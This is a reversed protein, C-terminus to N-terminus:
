EKFLSQLEELKRKRREEDSISLAEGLQNKREQIALMREEISNEMIFRVVKVNKLQGMRHLRDIAQFEIANNWHPDMLFAKSAVTLNLGVGGARLSLLLISVKQEGKPISKEFENLVRQRQELNLRGDFRLVEFEGTYKELETGIIDLFSTFQSFVIVHEGPTEQRIQELHILLANIKSSQENPIFPRVFYERSEETPQTSTPLQTMFTENADVNVLDISSFNIKKVTRFLRNRNIQTRCMPCFVEEPKFIDTNHAEDSIMEGNEHKLQFDFHETLCEICFCHKCETIICTDINIPGTCISCDINKFDPYLEYIEKKLDKIKQVPLKQQCDNAEIKEVLTLMEDDVKNSLKQQKTTVKNTPALDTDDGDEQEGTKILDVHCCVQRLRLLQTLITSYNKFVMGSKFNENFSNVAKEKLWEYIAIERKNFKLKEIVIEKPPLVVLFNGEKDRQNKTRRLLIPDLISKLLEVAFPVDKGTEFPDSICHKWLSHYCWPRMDLFHVLSFLDDLRNIIPTGTLVWRRDAKLDYISRATKTSKNRINHGEDLIIRLFKVSYLGTNACDSKDLRTWESQVMGYTTLVVTPPNPGCMLNKMNGLSDSGYFTVCRFQDNDGVVKQFEREWQSLLAMPVIILTTNYAYNDIRNLDDELLSEYHIDKPFSMVLSLTTITKGLGMEDALIGGKCTSKILPKVLSGTGKYMNLYFNKEDTAYEEKSRLREPTTPWSYEKWLPNLSNEFDKLLHVIKQKEEENLNPNNMGILDYEKERQLMWSLGQRQYPRLDLKFNTPYSEPINQQLINVETSKYLDKVQNMSLKAEDTITEGNENILDEPDISESIQANKHLEQFQSDDNYSDLPKTLDVLTNPLQKEETPNVGIQKFFKLMGSKLRTGAKINGNSGTMIKLQEIELEENSGENINESEFIHESLYCDTQIYFTDGTSLRGGSFESLKSEFIVAKEDILIGLMEAIDETLRGIERRHKSPDEQHSIYVVDSGYQKTFVLRNHELISSIGYISRTCWGRLTLTGIYRKWYKKESDKIRPTMTPTIKPEFQSMVVRKRVSRTPVTYSRDKQTQTRYYMNNNSMTESTRKRSVYQYTSKKVIPKIDKQKIVAERLSSPLDANVFESVNNKNHPESINSFNNSFTNFSDDIKEKKILQLKQHIANVDNDTTFKKLIDLIENTTNQLKEPGPFKKFYMVAQEIRITPFVARLNLYFEQFEENRIVVHFPLDSNIPKTELSHDFFTESEQENM